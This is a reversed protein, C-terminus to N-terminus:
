WSSPSNERLKQNVARFGVQLQRITEMQGRIEELLADLAASAATAKEVCGDAGSEELAILAAEIAGTARTVLDSVEGDGEYVILDGNRRGHGQRWYARDARM